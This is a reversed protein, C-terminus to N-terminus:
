LHLTLPARVCHLACQESRSNMRSHVVPEPHTDISPGSPSPVMGSTDHVDSLCISPTDTNTSGNRVVKMNLIFEDPYNYPIPCDDSLRDPPPTDIITTNPAHPLCVSLTDTNSINKKDIKM